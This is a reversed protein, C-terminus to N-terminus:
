WYEVLRAACTEANTLWACWCLSILGITLMMQWGFCSQPKSCDSVPVYSLKDPAWSLLKSCMVAPDGLGVMGDRGVM